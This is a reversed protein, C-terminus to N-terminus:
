VSKIEEFLEKSIEILKVGKERFEEVTVNFLLPPLSSEHLCFIEIEGDYRKLGLYYRM